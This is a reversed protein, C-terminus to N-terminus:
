GAGPVNVRKNSFTLLAAIIFLPSAILAWWGVVFFLAIGAVLLMIAALIPLIPALFAGVAAFLVIFLGWFFHATDNTVGAVKGLANFVNYLLVVVLALVAGVLGIITAIARLSFRALGG